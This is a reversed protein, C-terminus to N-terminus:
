DREGQSAAVAERLERALEGLARPPAPGDPRTQGLPTQAILAFFDALGEFSAGSHHAGPPDHELFGM